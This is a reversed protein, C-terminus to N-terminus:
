IININWFTKIKTVMLLTVLVSIKDHNTWKGSYDQCACILSTDDMTRWYFFHRKDPQAVHAELLTHGSVPGLNDKKLALWKPTRATKQCATHSLEQTISGWFLWKWLFPASPFPFPNTNFYQCSKKECSNEKHHWMCFLVAEILITWSFEKQWIFPGSLLLTTWGKRSILRTM